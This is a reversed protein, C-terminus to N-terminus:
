VSVGGGFDGSRKPLWVHIALFSTSGYYRVAAWTIMVEVASQMLEGGGVGGWSVLVDAVVRAGNLVCAVSMAVPWIWAVRAWRGGREAVVSAILLAWFVHFSPLSM